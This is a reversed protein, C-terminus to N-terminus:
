GYRREEHIPNSKSRPLKIDTLNVTSHIDFYQQYFGDFSNGDLDMLVNEIISSGTINGQIVQVNDLTGMELTAEKEQRIRFYYRGPSLNDFQVPVGNNFAEAQRQEKEKDEKKRSTATTPSVHYLPNAIVTSHLNHDIEYITTRSTPANLQYLGWSINMAAANNVFEVRLSLPLDVTLGQCYDPPNTTATHLCVQPQVWDTTVYSVRAAVAPADINGCGDAWSVIGVQVNDKTLLPGGSDGYCSDLGGEPSPHLTCLEADLITAGPWLDSCDPQSAIYPIDVQQMIDPYIKGKEDLSGFGIVTLWPDELSPINPNDNLIVPTAINAPITENIQLLIFDYKPESSYDGNFQPHVMVHVVDYANGGLFEISNLYVRGYDIDDSGSDDEPIYCHAASLLMDSAVLTAGCGQLDWYAFFPYEGAAVDTGGIVRPRPRLLKRQNKSSSSSSHATDTRRTAPLVEEKKAQSQPVHLGIALLFLVALLAGHRKLCAPFPQLRRRM